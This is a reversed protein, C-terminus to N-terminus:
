YSCSLWVVLSFIGQEVHVLYGRVRPSSAQSPLFWLVRWVWLFHTGVVVISAFLLFLSFPSVELILTTQVLSGEIYEILLFPSSFPSVELAILQAVENGWTWVHVSLTFYPCAEYTILLIVHDRWAREHLILSTCGGRHGEGLHLLFLLRLVLSLSAVLVLTTLLIM